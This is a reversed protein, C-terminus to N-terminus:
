ENINLVSKLIELIERTKKKMHTDVQESHM